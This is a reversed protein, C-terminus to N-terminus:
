LHLDIFQDLKRELRDFRADMRAFGNDVKVELRSYTFETYHRLEVLAKDVADFRRHLRELQSDAMARETPSDVMTGLCRLHPSEARRRLYRLDPTHGGSVPM